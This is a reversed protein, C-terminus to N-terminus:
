HKIIWNFIASPQINNHAGDGGTTNNTATNALISVGTTSSSTSPTQTGDENNTVSYVQAHPGGGCSASLFTTSHAHGPDSTGHSHANQTHTHGPMESTILTHTEEGGTNGLSNGLTGSGSGGSGVPVRRRMDPLRFNGAGEGGTNWTTGITSFLNAYTTQSVASGDCLLWGTPTSSGAFPLTVGTPVSVGLLYSLATQINTSGPIGGYAAVLDTEVAEIENKMDNHHAALDNHFVDAGNTHSVGTTGDAGRTFGTFHNGSIGTYHIAEADITIFGETPFGVTSAVLIGSGSTNDGTPGLMGNLTTSLNNVAIHLNADGAASGPYVAM